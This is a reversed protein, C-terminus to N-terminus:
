DLAPRPTGGRKWLWAHWLCRHSDWNDSICKWMYRWSFILFICVCAHTYIYIYTELICIICICIFVCLFWVYKTEQIKKWFDRSRSKWRKKMRVSTSPKWHRFAGLEKLVSEITACKSLLHKWREDTHYVQRFCWFFVCTLWTILIFLICCKKTFTNKWLYM